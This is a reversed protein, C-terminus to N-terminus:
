PRLLGPELASRGSGVPALLAEVLGVHRAGLLEATFHARAHRMAEDGLARGLAPDALLRGLKRALDDPDGPEALLATRGDIALDTVGTPLDSAVVPVGAMMAELLSIGFAETIETSPFAFMDIAALLRRKEALTVAGLFHVRDSIGLASAQAACAARQPGDGAVLAHVGPLRALAEMLIDLGKYRAHRGVFGVVPADGAFGRRWALAAAREKAQARWGQPDIGLPIVAARAKAELDRSVKLNKRSTVVVAAARRTLACYLWLAVRRLFPRGYIDMHHFIVLKAKEQFLLYRLLLFLSAFVNPAHFYIVDWRGRFIHGALTLSLPQACPTAAVRCRVVDVGGLHARGRGSAHNFVLARVDHRAALAESILRTSEEIGGHAPPYYKGIVLIRALPWGWGNGIRFTDVRHLKTWSEIVCIVYRGLM